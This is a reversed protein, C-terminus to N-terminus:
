PVPLSSCCSLSVLDLLQKYALWSSISAQPPQSPTRLRPTPYHITSAVVSHSDESHHLSTNPLNFHYNNVLSLSRLDHCDKYIRSRTGRRVLMVFNIVLSSGLCMFRRQISCVIFTWKLAHSRMARVGCLIVYIHFKWSPVFLM